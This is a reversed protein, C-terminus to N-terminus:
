CLTAPSFHFSNKMSGPVFTLIVPIKSDWYINGTILYTQLRCNQRELRCRAMVHHASWLEVASTLFERSWKEQTIACWCGPATAYKSNLFLPWPWPIQLIFTGWHLGPVSGRDTHPRLSLTRWFSYCIKHNRIDYFYCFKYFCIDSFKAALIHDVDALPAGIANGFAGGGNFADRAWLQIQSVVLNLSDYLLTLILQM